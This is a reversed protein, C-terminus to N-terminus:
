KGSRRPDRCVWDGYGGFLSWGAACAIRESTLTLQTPKFAWEFKARTTPNGAADTEVVFDYVKLKWWEVSADALRDQAVDYVLFARYVADPEPIIPDNSTVWRHKALADKGEAGRQQAAYADVLANGTPAPAAAGVDRVPQFTEGKSNVLTIVSRDFSIVHGTGNRVAVAFVPWPTLKRPEAYYTQDDMNVGLDMGPAKEELRVLAQVNPDNPEAGVPVVTIEVGHDRRTADDSNAVIAITHRDTTTTYKAAACAGLAWASAALLATMRVAQWKWITTM